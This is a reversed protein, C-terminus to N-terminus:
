IQSDTQTQKTKFKKKDFQLHAYQREKWRDGDRNKEKKNQRLTKRKNQKSHITDIDRKKEM